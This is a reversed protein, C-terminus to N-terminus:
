LLTQYGGLPQVPPPVASAVVVQRTAIEPKEVLGGLLGVCGTTSRYLADFLVEYIIALLWGAAVRL